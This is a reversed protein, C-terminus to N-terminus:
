TVIYEMHVPIYPFVTDIHGNIIFSPSRGYNIDCLDQVYTSISRILKEPRLKTYVLGTEPTLDQMAIYQENKKPCTNGM